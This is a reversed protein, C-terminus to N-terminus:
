YTSAIMARQIRMLNEIPADYSLMVKDKLSPKRDVNLAMLGELSIDALAANNITLSDSDGALNVLDELPVDYTLNIETNFVLEKAIDLTVLDDLTQNYSPTLEVTSTDPAVQINVLESLSLNYSLSDGAILDGYYNELKQNSNNSCYSFFFLYFLISLKFCLKM